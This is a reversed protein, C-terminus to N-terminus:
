CERAISCINRWWCVAQYQDKWTGAGHLLCNGSFYIVWILLCLNTELFFSLYTWIQISSLLNQRESRVGWHGFGNPKALWKLQVHCSWGIYIKWFYSYLFSMIIGSEWLNLWLFSIASSYVSSKFELEFLIKVMISM